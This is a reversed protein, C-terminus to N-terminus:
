CTMLHQIGVTVDTHGGRDRLRATFVDAIVLEEGDGVDTEPTELEDEDGRRREQDRHVDGIPVM